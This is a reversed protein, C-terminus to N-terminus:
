NVQWLGVALTVAVMVQVRIDLPIKDFTLATGNDVRMDTQNNRLAYLDTGVSHVIGGTM